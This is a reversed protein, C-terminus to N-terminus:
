LEDEVWRIHPAYESSAVVSRFKDDATVLPCNQAIALALYLCDYVPHSLAIALEMAAAILGASPLIEVGLVLPTELIESAERATIEGRRFKKWLVNGLEAVFFDPACLAIDPDLLRSAAASHTEPVFWKIAVNADVVFAKM